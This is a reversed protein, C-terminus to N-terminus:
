HDEVTRRGYEEADNRSWELAPSVRGDALVWGWGKGRGAHFTWGLVEGGDSSTFPEAECATYTAQAQYLAHDASTIKPRPFRLAAPTPAPAEDADGLLARGRKVLDAVTPQSIGLADKAYMQGGRGFTDVLRTVAVARAGAAAEVARAAEEQVAALHEGAWRAEVALATLRWAGYTGGGVVDVDEVDSYDFGAPRVTNGEDDYTPELLVAEDRVQREYEAVAEDLDATDAWDSESPNDYVVAWRGAGDAPDTYGVLAIRYEKQGISDLSYTERVTRGKDVAERFADEAEAAIDLGQVTSSIVRM